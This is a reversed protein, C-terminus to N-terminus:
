QSVRKGITELLNKIVPRELTADFTECVRKAKNQAHNSLNARNSNSKFKRKMTDLISEIDILDKDNDIM